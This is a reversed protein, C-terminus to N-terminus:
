KLLAPTRVQGTCCISIHDTGLRSLSAECAHALRNGTVDGPSLKSVLLVRDRQSAIVDGILKESRGGSYDDSTNILTMGLSVGTRLAEEEVDKPHRGLALRASGQGVASVVTGDRFRM